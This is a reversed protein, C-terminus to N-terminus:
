LHLKQVTYITNIVATKVIKVPIVVKKNTVVPRQSFIINRANFKTSVFFGLNALCIFPFILCTLM